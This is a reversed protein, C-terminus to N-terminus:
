FGSNGGRGCGMGNGFGNGAGRGRGMGCGGGRCRQYQAGCGPMIYPNKSQDTSNTKVSSNNRNNATLCASLVEKWDGSVFPCVQIGDNQLRTLFDNSIAGCVLMKVKNALLTYIKQEEDKPLDLEQKIEFIGQCEKVVYIKSASEFLPSIKEEEKIITVAIIM